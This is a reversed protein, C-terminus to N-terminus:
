FMSYFRARLGQLTSEPVHRFQLVNIFGFEDRNPKMTNCSIEFEVIVTLIHRDNECKHM